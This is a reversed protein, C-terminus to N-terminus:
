VEGFAGEFKDGMYSIFDKLPINRQKFFEAITTVTATAAICMQAGDLLMERSAEIKEM